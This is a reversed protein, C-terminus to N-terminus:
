KGTYTHAHARMHLHQLLDSHIALDGSAPTVPMQSSGLTPITIHDSGPDESLAICMRFQQAMEGTELHIPKISHSNHILLTKKKKLDLGAELLKPSCIFVWM